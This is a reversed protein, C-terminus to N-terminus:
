GYIELYKIVKSWNEFPAKGFHIHEGEFKDAGNRLRDDILIDGIALDKRHTLILRKHARKGFHKEIWIRKGMWSEPVNWMPTSLFYVEYEDMLKNVAEIAGEITELNEFINPNAEAIKNVKDARVLYDKMNDSTELEPCFSKIAKDFDAVVGDLDVYIIKDKM